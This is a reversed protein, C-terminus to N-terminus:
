NNSSRTSVGGTGSLWFAPASRRMAESGVYLIGENSIWISSAVTYIADPDGDRRGLGLEILEPEPDDDGDSV